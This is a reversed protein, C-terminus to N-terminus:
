DAKPPPTFLIRSSVFWKGPRLDYVTSIRCWAGNCPVAMEIVESPALPSMGAFRPETLIASFLQPVGIYLLQIAEARHDTGSPATEPDQRLEVTVGCSTLRGSEDYNVEWFPHGGAADTESDGTVSLAYRDQHWNKGAFGLAHVDSRAIFFGKPTVELLTNRGQYLSNCILRTMRFVTWLGGTDQEPKVISLRGLFMAYDGIGETGPASRDSEARKGAIGFGTTDTTAGPTDSGFLYGDQASGCQSSALLMAAACVPITLYRPKPTNRRNNM